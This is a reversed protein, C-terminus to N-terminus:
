ECVKAPNHYIIAFRGHSLGLEETDIIPSFHKCSPTLPPTEWPLQNGGGKVVLM